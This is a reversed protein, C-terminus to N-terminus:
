GRVYFVAGLAILGVALAFLRSWWIKVGLPTLVARPPTIHRFIRAGEDNAVVKQKDVLFRLGYASVMLYVFCVIFTISLTKEMNTLSWAGM